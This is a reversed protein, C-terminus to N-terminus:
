LCFFFFSVAKTKTDRADLLPGQKYFHLGVHYPSLPEEILFSCSGTLLSARSIYIIASFHKKKNKMRLLHELLTLSTYHHSVNNHLYTRTLQISPKSYSPKRKFHWMQFEMPIVLGSAFLQNIPQNIFTFTASDWRVRQLGQVICDM